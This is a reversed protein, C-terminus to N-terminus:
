EYNECLEVAAIFYGRYYRARDRARHPRLKPIEKDVNKILNFPNFFMRANGEADGECM